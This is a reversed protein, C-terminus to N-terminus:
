KTPKQLFISLDHIAADDSFYLGQEAAFVEAETTFGARSIYWGQANREQANRLLKELEKKGVRKNKWKVEAIWDQDSSGSTVADLEVQGDKAKYGSVTQFLPLHVPDKRGFWKGQAVQGNFSRMLERIRSEQVVGLEESARQFQADLRGMLSKLDLPEASLSVEIGKVVNGVWFRLVPDRFFYLHDKEQILDVECLWRLYDSATGATVRLRRGIQSATLGEEAALAQLVAKLSGYGSAKQLSLDYVYRCFDYIRGGPALTEILFAQKVTDSTAPRQVVDVLYSLRRSLATIYYPHGVTLSHILPYIDPDLEESVLKNVLTKTSALPFPDVALRSFQAFLPSDPHSLLHTLISIASGALLYMIGSQTQMEARFLALVNHSEPFNELTRIEQFEDFALVLRKGLKASALRPFRFAQRLLTQRDPKARELEQLIPQIDALLDNAGNRVLAVPLTSSNLYHEPDTQGKEFIWYCLSGIYGLVFNEPSSCLASFDMYAPILDDNSLMIQRILEKLLLTKGIRRLGFLAMHEAPGTQFTNLVHKLQGLETDRDTFLHQQDPPYFYNM